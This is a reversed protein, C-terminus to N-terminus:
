NAIRMSACLHLHINLVPPYCILSESQPVFSNSNGQFLPALRLSVTAEKVTKVGWFPSGLSYLARHISWSDAPEQFVISNLCLESITGFEEDVDQWGPHLLHSTLVWPRIFRFCCLWRQLMHFPPSFLNQFSWTSTRFSSKSLCSDDDPSFM